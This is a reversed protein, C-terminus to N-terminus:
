FHLFLHILPSWILVFLIKEMLDYYRWDEILIIFVSLFVWRLTGLLEVPSDKTDIAEQLVKIYSDLQQQSANNELLNKM